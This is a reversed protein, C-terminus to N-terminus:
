TPTLTKEMRRTGAYTNWALVDRPKLFKSLTSEQRDRKAKEAHTMAREDAQCVRNRARLTKSVNTLQNGRKETKANWQANSAYDAKM